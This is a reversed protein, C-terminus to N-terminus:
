EPTLWNMLTLYSNWQVASAAQQGTVLQHSKSNNETYKTFLV